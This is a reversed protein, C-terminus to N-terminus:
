QGRRVISIVPNEGNGSNVIAKELLAGLDPHLGTPTDRETRPVEDFLVEASQTDFTAELVCEPEKRKKGRPTFRGLAWIDVAGYENRRMSTIEIELTGTRTPLKLPEPLQGFLSLALKEPTPMDSVDIGYRVGTVVKGTGLGM